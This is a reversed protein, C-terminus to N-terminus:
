LVRLGVLTIDDSPVTNGRFQNLEKRLLTCIEEPSSDHNSKLFSKLRKEDYMEGEENIIETVGDTYLYVADGSKLTAERITYRTGPVCGIVLDSGEPCEVQGGDRVIAPPPHGANVYTLQRTVKDYIGFLATLYQESSTFSCVMENLCDAMSYLDARRATHLQSRLVAQANGTLLAAPLGHGAVDGISIFVRTPGLEVLDYYDGGVDDAPENFGMAIFEANNIHRDPLFGQQITHAVRMEKQMEALRQEKKFLRANEIVKSVQTGVISLFRKDLDDFEGGEEKNFLVLLGLLGKRSLLPAAILSHLGIAAFDLGKLRDDNAPDNSVLVAKNKHMWGLLGVHLHFPLQDSDTMGRVFTKMRVLTEFRDASDDQEQVLFIAGQAAKNRRCCENVIAATIKEVSMTVSITNAIKNLTTLENLAHKLRDLERQSIQPM